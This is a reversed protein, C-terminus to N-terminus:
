PVATHVEGEAEGDRLGAKNDDQVGAHPGATVPVNSVPIHSRPIHM